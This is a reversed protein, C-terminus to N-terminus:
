WVDYDKEVFDLGFGYVNILSVSTGYHDRNFLLLLKNQGEHRVFRIDKAPQQIDWVWFLILRQKSVRYWRLSTVGKNEVCLVAVIDNEAGHSRTAEVNVLTFTSVRGEIDFENFRRTTANEKIDLTYM